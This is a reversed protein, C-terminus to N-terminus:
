KITADVSMSPVFSDPVAEVWPEVKVWEALVSLTPVDVVIRATDM